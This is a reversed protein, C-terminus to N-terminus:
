RNIQPRGCIHEITMFIFLSIRNKQQHIENPCRLVATTWCMKRATVTVTPCVWSYFLNTKLHFCCAIELDLEFLAVNTNQWRCLPQDEKWRTLRHTYAPLHEHCYTTRPVNAWLGSHLIWQLGFALLDPLNLLMASFAHFCSSPHFHTASAASVSYELENWLLKWTQKSM